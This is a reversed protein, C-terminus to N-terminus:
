RTTSATSALQLIRNTIPATGRRSTGAIRRPSGSVAGGFSVANM